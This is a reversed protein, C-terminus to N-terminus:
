LMNGGRLSYNVRRKESECGAPTIKIGDVFNPVKSTFFASGDAGKRDILPRAFQPPQILFGRQAGMGTLHIHTGAPPNDKNGIVVSALPRTKGHLRALM